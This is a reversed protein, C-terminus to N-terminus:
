RPGLLQALERVIIPELRDLAHLLYFHGGPFTHASFSSTTQERWAGIRPAATEPDDDGGLATIPCDLPAEPAYVYTDRVAMDARMVPLLMQLLEPVRWAEEPPRFLRRLQMLFDADPLEHVPARGLPLQPAGLASIFLQAPQASGRRRLERAVEFCILAGLSHGFFVFPRDLLPALADAVVRALTSASTHLPERLRTERGPLQVPRVELTAPFARTWSHYVSTGGGAFPFCFM